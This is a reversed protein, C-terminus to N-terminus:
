AFNSMWGDIDGSSLADNGKKGIESYKPDAFEAPQMKAPTVVASDSAAVAKDDASKQTCSFFLFSIFALSMLRKM